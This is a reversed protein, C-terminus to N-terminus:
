DGESFEIGDDCKIGITDKSVINFKVYDEETELLYLAKPQDVPFVILCYPNGKIFKNYTEKSIDIEGILSNPFFYEKNQYLFKLKCFINGRRWYTETIKACVVAHPKIKVKEQIYYERVFGVIIIVVFVAFAIQIKKDNENSMIATIKIKQM